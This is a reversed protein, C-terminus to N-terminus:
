RKLIIEVIQFIYIGVSVVNNQLYFLFTNDVKIMSGKLQYIKKGVEKNVDPAIKMFALYM